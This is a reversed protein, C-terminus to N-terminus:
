GAVDISHKEDGTHAPGKPTYGPHSQRDEAAEEQDNSKLNRIAELAQPGVIVADGEVTRPRLRDKRDRNEAEAREVNTAGAVAAALNVGVISM